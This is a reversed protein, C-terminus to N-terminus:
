ILRTIIQKFENDSILRNSYMDVTVVKLQKLISPNDNGMLLEGKLKDYEMKLTILPDPLEDRFAHEIHTVQLIEKFLQQDEVSLKDFAAQSISTKYLLDKMMEKVPESIERKPGVKKRSPYCVNLVGNNLDPIRVFKSGLKKYIYASALGSNQIDNLNYYKGKRQVSSYPAGGSGRPRGPKGAGKLGRGRLRGGLQEGPQLPELDRSYAQTFGQVGVRDGTEEVVELFKKMRTRDIVDRYSERPRQLKRFYTYSVHSLKDLTEAWHVKKFLGDAANGSVKKNTANKILCLKEKWLSLRYGNEDGPIVANIQFTPVDRGVRKYFVTLFRKAEKEPINLSTKSINEGTRVSKMATNRDLLTPNDSGTFRTPNAIMVKGQARRLLRANITIDKASLRTLLDQLTSHWNVLDLKTPNNKNTSTRAIELSGRDQSLRLHFGSLLDGESSPSDTGILPRVILRKAKIRADYQQLIALVIQKSTAQVVATSTDDEPKNGRSRQEREHERAEAASLVAGDDGVALPSDRARSSRVPTSTTAPLSPRVSPTRTSAPLALRTPRQGPTEIPVQLSPRQSSTGIPGQLGLQRQSRTTRPPTPVLALQSPATPPAELAPLASRLPGRSTRPPTPTYDPMLLRVRSPRPAVPIRAVPPPVVPGFRRRRSNRDDIADERSRRVGITSVHPANALLEYERRLQRIVPVIPPTSPNEQQAQRAGENQFYANHAFSLVQQTTIWDYKNVDERAGTERNFPLGGVGLMTSRDFSGGRWVPHVQLPRWDVYYDPRRLAERVNRFGLRVSQMALLTSATHPWNFDDGNLPEGEFVLDGHMGLYALTFPQNDRGLPRIKYMHLDPFLDFTARIFRRARSVEPDVTVLESTLPVGDDFEDVGGNDIDEYDPLTDDLVQAPMGVEEVLSETTPVRIPESEIERILPLEVEEMDVDLYETNPTYPQLPPQPETWLMQQLASLVSSVSAPISLQLETDMPETDMPETDMPEPEVEVDPEITSQTVAEVADTAEIKVNSDGVNQEDTKKKENTLSVTKEADSAWVAEAYMDRQTERQRYRRSVKELLELRKRERQQVSTFNPFM